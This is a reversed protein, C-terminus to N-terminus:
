TARRQVSADCAVVKVREIPGDIARISDRFEVNNM